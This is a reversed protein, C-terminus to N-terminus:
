GGLYSGDYACSVNEICPSYNDVHLPNWLLMITRQLGTHMVVDVLSLLLATM